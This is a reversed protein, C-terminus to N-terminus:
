TCTLWSREPPGRCGSGSRATGASCGSPYRSWGRATTGTTSTLSRSGPDTVTKGNMRAKAEDGLRASPEMVASVVDNAARATMACARALRLMCVGDGSSEWATRVDPFARFHERVDDPLEPFLSDIWNQMPSTYAPAGEASTWIRRPNACQEHACHAAFERWRHAECFEAVARRRLYAAQSKAALYRRCAHPKESSEPYLRDVRLAEVKPKAAEVEPLRDAHEPAARHRRQGPTEILEGLAQLTAM